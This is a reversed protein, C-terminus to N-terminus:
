GKGKGCDGEPGISERIKDTPSPIEKRLRHSSFDIGGFRDINKEYERLGKPSPPPHGQASDFPNVRLMTSHTLGRKLVAPM